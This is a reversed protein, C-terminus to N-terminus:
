ASGGIANDIGGNGNESDVIATTSGNIASVTGFDNVEFTIRCPM